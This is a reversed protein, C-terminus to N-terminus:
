GGVHCGEVRGCGGLWGGVCTFFTICRAASVVTWGGRSQRCWWRGHENRRLIVLGISFYRIRACAFCAIYRAASAPASSSMRRTSTSSSRARM